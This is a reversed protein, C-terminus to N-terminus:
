VAVIASHLALWCHMPPRGSKGSGATPQHWYDGGSAHGRVCPGHSRVGRSPARAAVDPRVGKARSTSHTGLMAVGSIQSVPSSQTPGRSRANATPTSCRPSASSTAIRSPVPHQPERDVDEGGQQELLVAADPAERAGAHALQHLARPTPAALPARTAAAM